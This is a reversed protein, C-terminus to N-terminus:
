QGYKAGGGHEQNAAPYENVSQWWNGLGQVIELFEHVANSTKASQEAHEHGDKEIPDDAHNGAGDDHAHLTDELSQEAASRVDIGFLFLESKLPERFM